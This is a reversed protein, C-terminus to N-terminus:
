EAETTSAEQDLLKVLDILPYASGHPVEQDLLNVLDVLPYASRRSWQGIRAGGASVTDSGMLDIIITSLTPTLNLLVEINKLNMQITKDDM